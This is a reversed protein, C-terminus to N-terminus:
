KQEDVVEWYGLLKIGRSQCAMYYNQMDVLLGTVIRNNPKIIKLNHTLKLSNIDSTSLSYNQLHSYNFFLLCCFLLCILSNFLSVICARDSLFFWPWVIMTEFASIYYCRDHMHAQFWLLFNNWVYSTWSLTNYSM